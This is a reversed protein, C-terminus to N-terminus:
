LEGEEEEEEAKEEEEEEEEEEGEEEEGKSLKNGTTVPKGLVKKSQGFLAGFNKPPIHERSELKSLIFFFAKSFVWINIIDFM